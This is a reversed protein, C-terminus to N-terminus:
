TRYPGQMGKQERGLVREKLGELCKVCLKIIKKLKPGAEFTTLLTIM